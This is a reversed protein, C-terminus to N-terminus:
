GNVAETFLIWRVRHEGTKEVRYRAKFALGERELRILDSKTLGFVDELYAPNSGLTEEIKNKDCFISPDVEFMRKLKKTRELKTGPM